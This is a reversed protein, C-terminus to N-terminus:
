KRFVKGLISLILAMLGVLGGNKVDPAPPVTKTPQPPLMALWRGVAFGPCGKNAYENHGSVEMPGYQRFLDGILRRLARDQQHTFHDSFADSASAGHGGILCVGISGTNHGKTHAGIREIPRGTAVGGDRDILFHYGIDSWGRDSVHWDKIEAVKAELPQGEMWEPRTAACHIIIEALPRM